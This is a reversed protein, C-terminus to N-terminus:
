KKSRTNFMKADLAYKGSGMIILTIFVVSYILPTDQVKVPDAAHVLFLGSLTISVIALAAWRTFLGVLILIACGVNAFIAYYASLTGGIGMPDPIHAVTGEVDWLKPLGHTRLLALAGFVRLFLLGLGMQTDTLATATSKRIFTLITKMKM